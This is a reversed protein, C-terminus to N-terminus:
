EESVTQQQQLHLSLSNFGDPEGEDRDIAAAAVAVDGLQDWRLQGGSRMPPRM